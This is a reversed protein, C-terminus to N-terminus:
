VHPVVLTTAFYRVTTYRSLSSIIRDLTEAVAPLRLMFHADTLDGDYLFSLGLGFSLWSEGHVRRRQVTVNPTRFGKTAM